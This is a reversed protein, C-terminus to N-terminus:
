AHHQPHVRRDSEGDHRSTAPAYTGSTVMAPTLVTNTYNHPGIPIGTLLLLSTKLGGSVIALPNALNFNAAPHSPNTVDIIKPGTTPTPASLM